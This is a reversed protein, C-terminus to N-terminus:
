KETKYSEFLNSKCLEVRQPHLKLSQQISAMLRKIHLHIIRACTQAKDPELKTKSKQEKQGKEKAAKMQSGGQWDSLREATELQNLSKAM